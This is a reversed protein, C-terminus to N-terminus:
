VAVSELTVKAYQLKNLKDDEIDIRQNNSSIVEINQSDGGELETDM